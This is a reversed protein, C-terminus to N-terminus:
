ATLQALRDVLENRDLRKAPEVDVLRAPRQFLTVYARELRVRVQGPGVIVVRERDGIRDVIRTLYRMGATRTHGRHEIETVKVRGRATTTAVIAHRHDVWTVASSGRRPRRTMTHAPM